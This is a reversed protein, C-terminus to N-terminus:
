WRAPSEKRKKLKYHRGNYVYKTTATTGASAWNATIDRFGFTRTQEITLCNAGEWLLISAQQGSQRVLWFWTNDAGSMPSKGIVLFFSDPLDALDVKTGRFLKAIDAPEGRSEASERTERAEKTNLLARLVAKPLPVPRLRVDAPADDDCFTTQEQSTKQQATLSGMVLFFVVVVAGFM